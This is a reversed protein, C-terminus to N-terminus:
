IELWGEMPYTPYGGGGCTPALAIYLVDERLEPDYVREFAFEIGDEYDYYQTDAAYGFQDGVQSPAIGWLSYLDNWSLFMGQKFMESYQECASKVFDEEARFWRGFQQDRCLLRGHGSEEYKEVVKEITRPQIKKYIDELVENGYRKRIEDELQQRNATLFAVTGMLTAIEKKNVKYGAIISAVTIGGTIMAPIYCKWTLSIYERTSPPEFVAPLQPEEDGMEEEVIDAEDDVVPILRQNRAALIEDAKMQGKAMFYVTAGFGALSLCMLGFSKKNRLASKVKGM